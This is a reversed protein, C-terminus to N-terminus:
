LIDERYDKMLKEVEMRFWPTYRKSKKEMDRVLYDIDVYEYDCIEAQVKKSNLDPIENSKGILVSCLENESGVLKGNERYEEQYKFDYLKELDCSFGLEEYLRRKGASLVDEGDRPHSCCTNTWYFPWLMKKGSRRTILLEGPNRFVFVSFASHLVGQGLHGKIKEILGIDNGNKDVRVIYDKM